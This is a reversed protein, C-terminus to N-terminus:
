AHKTTEGYVRHYGPGSSIADARYMKSSQTHCEVTPVRCPKAVGKQGIEKMPAPCMSYRDLVPLYQVIYFHPVNM